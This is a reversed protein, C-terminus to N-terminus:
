PVGRLRHGGHPGHAARVPEGRDAPDRVSWVRLVRRQDQELRAQEGSADYIPVYSDRPISVVYARKRDEPIHLVMITDSRYAGPDWEGDALLESITPSTAGAPQPQRGGDARHQHGQDGDEDPRDGEKLVSDDVRPINDLKNNLNWGYFGVTGATALAGVLLLAAWKPHGHRGEWAAAGFMGLVAIVLLWATLELYGHLMLWYLGAITLPVALLGVATSRRM